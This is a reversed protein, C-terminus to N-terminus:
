NARRTSHWAEMQWAGGNKVYVITFRLPVEQDQGGTTVSVDSIGNLIAVDPRALRVQVDRHKLARYKVQGSRLAALFKEKNDLAANSHTYSMTPSLLDALRDIQGSTLLEVREQERKLVDDGSQAAASRHTLVAALAACALLASVPTLRRYRM